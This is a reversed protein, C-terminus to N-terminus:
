HLTSKIFPLFLCLSFSINLRYLSDILVLQTRKISLKNYKCDFFYFSMDSVPKISTKLTSLVFDKENESLINHRRARM